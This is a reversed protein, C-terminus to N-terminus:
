KNDKSLNEYFYKLDMPLDKKEYREFQSLIEGRYMGRQYNSSHDYQEKLDRLEKFKYKSNINVIYVFALLILSFVLIDSFKNDVFDLM